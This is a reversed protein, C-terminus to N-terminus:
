IGGVGGHSDLLQAIEDWITERIMEVPLTADIVRWRDPEAQALQTYGERVREHFEIPSNEFKRQGEEDVRLPMDGATTKANSRLPPELRQLADEPPLDLLFTRQPTLGQTAFTNLWRVWGADLM